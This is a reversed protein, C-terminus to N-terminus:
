WSFVNLVTYGFRKPGNEVM